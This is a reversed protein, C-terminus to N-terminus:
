RSAEGDPARRITVPADLASRLIELDDCGPQPNATYIAVERRYADQLVCTVPQWEGPIREIQDGVRVRDAPVDLSGAALFAHRTLLAAVRLADAPTLEATDRALGIVVATVGPQDDDEDLRDLFMDIGHEVPVGNERGTVVLRGIESAHYDTDRSRHGTCWAPCAVLRIPHVATTM